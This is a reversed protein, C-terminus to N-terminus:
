TFSTTYTPSVFVLNHRQKRYFGSFRIGYYDVEVARIVATNVLERRSYEQNEWVGM